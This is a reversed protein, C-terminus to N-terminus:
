RDIVFLVCVPGIFLACVPGVFLACVPGCVVCLCAWLCRL